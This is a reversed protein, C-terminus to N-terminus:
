MGTAHEVCELELERRRQDRDFVRVINLRTAGDSMIIWFRPTITRSYSDSRMRVIHTVNSQTQRATFREIGSVPQIEVWPEFLKVESEIREGDSNVTPTNSYVAVRERKKGAGSM